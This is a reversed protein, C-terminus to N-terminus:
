IMHKDALIFLTHKCASGKPLAQKKQTTLQIAITKAPNKVHARHGKNLNVYCRQIIKKSCTNSM